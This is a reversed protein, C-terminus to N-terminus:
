VLLCLKVLTVAPTDVKIFPLPETNQYSNNITAQYLKNKNILWAYLSCRMKSQIGPAKINPLCLSHAPVIRDVV